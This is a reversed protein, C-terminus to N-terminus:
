YLLVVNQAHNQATELNFRKRSGRSCFDWRRILPGQGSIYALNDVIVCPKYSGAPKAPTPLKLGLKELNHEFTM